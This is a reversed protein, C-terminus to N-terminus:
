RNVFRPRSWFDTVSGSKQKAQIAAEEQEAEFGLDTPEMARPRSAGASASDEPDRRNDPVPQLGLRARQLDLGTGLAGGGIAAEGKPPEAALAALSLMCLILFLFFVPMREDM